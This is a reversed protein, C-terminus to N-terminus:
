RVRDGPSVGGNSRQRMSPKNSGDPNFNHDSEGGNATAAKHNLLSVMETDQNGKKPALGVHDVMYYTYGGLCFVTFVISASTMAKLEPKLRSGEGTVTDYLPVNEVLAFSMAGRLGAFWLVLQMKPEVIVGAQPVPQRLDGPKRACNQRIQRLRTIWNALLSLTPIMIARSVCCGFIALISHWFNWHYRYSFLFVGLYAFIATEMMTALIETVFGVHTRATLSLHGQKSFMGRRGNINTSTKSRGDGPAGQSHQSVVLEDVTQIPQQGVVFLDMVFGTTVVSVIGSWGIGDCIYYPIFAWCFFMLVEVLPTQCGHMGWFYVTCVVGSGIGVFVSGFAVVFFHISATVVAESDIVLADDLFHKLTEFLVIAVGDNLLSEGFILVYIADTDTMGMNSLVSLVAIPDISSILAGFTLSEVYPITECLGGLMRTGNHVIYATIITALLTGCVAYIMIPVAFRNFARKDISLAAEFVIPPVMIRLFWDGDFSIDFPKPSLSMIAGSVVGVLICGAAEPLWRIRFHRILSKVMGCFAIVFIILFLKQDSVTEEQPADCNEHFVNLISACCTRAEVSTPDNLVASVVATTDQVAKASVVADVAADTLTANTHNAAAEIATQITNEKQLLLTESLMTDSVRQNSTPLSLSPLPKKPQTVNAVPVTTANVETLAPTSKKEAVDAPPNETPPTETATTTSAEEGALRRFLKRHLLRDVEYDVQFQAEDYFDFVEDEAYFEQSKTVFMFRYLDRVNRTARYFLMKWQHHKEYLKLKRRRQRRETGGSEDDEESATTGSNGKGDIIEQTSDSNCTKDFAKKLGECEDKADTANIVFAIVSERCELRDSAIGPLTIRPEDIAEVIPYSEEDNVEGNEQSKPINAVDKYVVTEQAARSVSKPSNREEATSPILQLAGFLAAGVLIVLMSVSSRNMRWPTAKPSSVDGDAVSTMDDSRNAFVGEELVTETSDDKDLM